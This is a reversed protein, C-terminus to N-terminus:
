KVNTTGKNLIRYSNPSLKYTKKFSKNFNSLNNFGCLKAIYEISYETELLNRAVMGLRYENLFLIFSNGTQRKIMRSFSSVSMNFLDAADQLKIQSRYNEQIYAYFARNDANDTKQLPSEATNLMSIQTDHMVIQLIQQLLIYSHLGESQALSHLMPFVKCATEQSFLIGYQARELLTRLASMATKSLLTDAFLDAHFQLTKEHVESRLPQEHVWGHILNPGTLVLEWENSKDTNAGTIRTLERGNNICTLEYENHYHIPFDFVTKTREFVVFCDDTSIPTIEQKFLSDQM